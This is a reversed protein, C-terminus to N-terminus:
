ESSQSTSSIMRGAFNLVTSNSYGAKMLIPPFAGAMPCHESSVTTSQGQGIDRLFHWRYDRYYHSIRNGRPVLLEFNGPSGWNGQIMVPMGTVGDIPRGDAQIPAGGFGGISRSPRVPSRDHRSGRGRLPTHPNLNCLAHN